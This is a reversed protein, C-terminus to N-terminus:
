SSSSLKSRLFKEAEAKLDDRALSIDVFAKFYELPTGVDHRNGDIIHAYIKHKRCMANMADTLQIEGGSGVGAKEIYEFIEPTFLYRGILALDSPAKEPLPKEVAEKILLDKGLSVIGYRKTEERRVKKVAVISAKLKNYQSILQKIPPECQTYFDDGLLVAFPESGIFKRACYIAHGLGLQEKQRIYHIDALESIKRISNLLGNEGKQKLFNELEASVDFHDEIARKGRGTIILIDTIGSAVAEEVVFQIVPKDIIPLMEKPMAKTAPLFRTGLGAAPIVARM